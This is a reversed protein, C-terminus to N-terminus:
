QKLLVRSIVVSVGAGVFAGMTNMVLDTLEFIGVRLLLQLCEICLSLSFGALTALGLRRGASFRKASALFESLLLGFPIFAAINSMIEARGYEDGYLIRVFGAKMGFGSGHPFVGSYRIVVATELLLLSAFVTAGLMIAGYVSFKKSALLSTTLAMVGILVWHASPVYALISRIYSSVTLLFM